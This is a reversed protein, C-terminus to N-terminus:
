RVYVFETTNLLVWAVHPLGRERLTRRAMQSEEVDPSRGLTLKWLQTVAEDPQNAALTLARRALHDAQRQVFGSNMLGLAQLPTTTVGRRPTRVSPDPCDLADLLPEKGSNINMRYVTRRNFEPTGRDVLHYFTAGYESTTFPRFSPGGTQFNLEGSVALMADRITEGELRRPPFRWLFVADADTALGDSRAESSQQYTESSVILRHLAKQSWGRAIFEGALWDLLEPHSPKTGSRGLDSPTGVLGQGFHYGWIRNVLVRAPLPNRPDALWYAFRRRRDAEPADPALGLDKPLSDFASLGSPSVIDGPSKVDGRRLIRTPAPQERRGAYVFGGPKEEAQVRRQAEQLRQRAADRERVERPTLYALAETLSPGGGGERFVAQIDVPSLARDHLAAQRVTGTLWPKGGNEHRRGIAIRANGALFTVLAPVEYPEGYPQGNRYLAVKRDASYVAAMHVWGGLAESEEPAQLDRTRLFGESGAAWKRPQREGFVLADFVRGDAQELSLAAGGGQQLDSLRVWVSLTKERIDRTLPMSQFYAEPKPLELVGATIQASGHLKGTVEATELRNFNWQFRPLPAIETQTAARPVRAIAQAEISAIRRVESEIERRVQEKRQERLRLDETGEISRDGHRVGDFVSKIRYYDGIPIPDFKHDHCRACNVTLGLFTQGVVSVLDDMEEERTIARQTANAQSNGAQDWPGSVLMSSAIVGESTVPELVDGAVQERMFRDYPLDANFSRIVYDRFPWAHDRPRDYEFGQSETYRVVDLWHRAWREGYRPSALLREVLAEYNSRSPDREFEAVLQPEPPLGVLDWHLRRILDRPSAPPNPALGQTKLASRIFADVPHDGVPVAPRTLPRFSWHNSAPMAAALPQNEAAAVPAGVILVAVIGVIGAWLCFVRRPRDRQFWTLLRIM